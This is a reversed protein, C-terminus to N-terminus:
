LYSDLSKGAPRLTLFGGELAPSGLEIGPRPVLVGCAVPCTFRCVAVVSGVVVLSIGCAVVFIERVAVLAQHLWFFFFYSDSPNSKLCYGLPTEM